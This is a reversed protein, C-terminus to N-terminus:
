VEKEHANFKNLFVYLSTLYQTTIYHDTNYLLFVPLVNESVIEKCCIKQNKAFERSQLVIDIESNRENSIRLALILNEELIGPVQMTSPFVWKAFFKPFVSRVRAM